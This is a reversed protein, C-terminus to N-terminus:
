DLYYTNDTESSSLHALCIKILRMRVCLRCATTFSCKLM